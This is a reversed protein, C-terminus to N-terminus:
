ASRNEPDTAAPLPLRIEITTGTGPQSHIQFAGGLQQIRGPLNKLGYGDHTSQADFGTGNDTVVILLTREELAMKFQVETAKSHRVINHLVEKVALFLDHRLKGTLTVAPFSVPVDFRGVIRGNALYEDTYGTLYDALSQLSNEEPNVAWVIVDLAGILSRARDTIADLLAPFGKGDAQVQPRTKALLAIEALSSGLDDHLDRAIRSREAEVARLREAQERERIERRLQESRQEVQRRLSTIWVMALLLAVFLCGVVALMRALTWWSPQSLVVIDAPSNLLLEFAGSEEGVHRVGSQEVLVGTLRLRSGIRPAADMPADLRAFFPQSGSQMELVLQQRERHLGIMKAEIQVLTSDNGSRKLESDSLIKPPPMLASEVQRVRAEHLTPSPGAITPYGIVEVVDGVQWQNTFTEVPLVRLGIRGQQLFLRTADAHVVQGKIKVRQFTTAQVDFLLLDHIDKSIADSFDKPAARDLNISPNLMTVSGVRIERTASDWMAYLTGRLRIVANVYGNLERASYDPLHVELRGDPLLLSLVGNRASTVLGRLEVWQVDSSGNIVESWTPRAPEPMAAAGLREARKAIVVPAFQGPGSHGELEWMEGVAPSVSWPIASDLIAFIGRTADQITLGNMHRATTSTIVGRIKVPLKQVADEMRLRQVQEATTLPQTSDVPRGASELLTVDRGSAVALTGFALRRDESFVGRAVGVVQVQANLLTLPNLGAADAVRALLRNAGASLEMELGRGVPRIFRVRGTVQAWQFEDQAPMREGIFKNEPAPPSQQSLVTVLPSMSGLHLVAGDDSTVQFTYDGARPVDLFGTFRLAVRETRSRFALDLNTVVGTKVPKLLSFEPLRNWTGEYAAVSLGRESSNSLQPSLWAVPLPQRPLDPGEVTVQLDALNLENYWEVALPHRGQDLYITGLAELAAHNGDNDVVPAATIEVGVDRRRLWSNTQAIQIQMGPLLPNKQPGLDLLEVGTEDQVIVIGLAPDAAACVTVKLAVDGTARPSTATAQVVERLNTFTPGAEATRTAVM